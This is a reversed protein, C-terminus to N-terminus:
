NSLMLGNIFNTSPDAMDLEKETFDCEFSDKVVIVAYDSGEKERVGDVHVGNEQAARVWEDITNAKVLVNGSSGADDM